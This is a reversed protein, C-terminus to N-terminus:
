RSRWESTEGACFLLRRTMPMTVLAILLYIIFILQSLLIM